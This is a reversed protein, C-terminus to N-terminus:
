SRQFDSTPTVSPNNGTKEGKNARITKSDRKAKAQALIFLALLTLFANLSYSFLAQLHHELHFDTLRFPFSFFDAAKVGTM